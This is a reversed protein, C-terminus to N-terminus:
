SLLFQTLFLVRCILYFSVTEFKYAYGQASNALINWIGSLSFLTVDRITYYEFNFVNPTFVLLSISVSSIAIAYYFPFVLHNHDKTFTKMFLSCASGSVAMSLAGLIAMTQVVYSIEDGSNTKSISFLLIGIFSGITCLIEEWVIAEKIIIFAFITTFIPSTNWIIMSKSTPLYKLSLFGCLMWIASSLSIFALLLRSGQHVKFGACSLKLLTTSSIMMSIVRVLVYDFGTLHPNVFYVIKAFLSMMFFILTGIVFWLIATARQNKSEEENIIKHKSDNVILHQQKETDYDDIEMSSLEESEQDM